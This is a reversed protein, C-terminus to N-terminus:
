SVLLSKKSLAISNSNNLLDLRSGEFLDAVVTIRKEFSFEGM